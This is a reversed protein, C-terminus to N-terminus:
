RRWYSRTLLVVVPILELRGLWMLTSLTVTSLDSFPASSGFPGFFTLGGGVNGLNTAAAALAEFPSIRPERLSADAMLITAGVAFLVLYLITFALVSRVAPESLVSRNFRIPRVEEPHVVVRGERRLIRAVILVRVVKLAGGTSGSSAGVLMLIVLAFLALQTYATYDESGFGTTTMISVVQFAGHRVAEALRHAGHAYLEAAVIASAGVLIALYWRFEEDGLLHRRHRRVALFWLGLNSGGFVMFAIVVWQAYAGYGELSHPDPSFGGTSVTSFTYVVSEYLHMRPALGVLGGTFLLAVEFLTGVLYVSWVRRATQRIRPSLKEFELGPSEGSMLLFSGSVRPLLALAFVVIGVGGLWQTLSRWFVIARGHSSIDVIITSGTTTLGSMAEFYADVPRSADGGELIYPLAAVGAAVAWAAAVILFGERAGVRAGAPAARELAVGITLGILFSVVFPRLSEGEAYALPVPALLALSFWRVITGISRASARLDVHPEVVGRM